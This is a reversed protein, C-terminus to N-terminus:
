DMREERWGEARVALSVRTAEAINKKKLCFVAYSIIQHSSNLRTSKRDELALGRPLATGRSRCRQRNCIAHDSSVAASRSTPGRRGEIRPRDFQGTEHRPMRGRSRDEGRDNSHTM